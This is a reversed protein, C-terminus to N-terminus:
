VMDKITLITATAVPSWSVVGQKLTRRIPLTDTSLWPYHQILWHVCGLFSHIEHSTTLQDPFEQLKLLVHEQLIIQGRCIKVGLFDVQPTAIVMKKASLVLSNKEYITNFQQLHRLHDTMTKSFVLIDDIYVLVFDRVPAFLTDGM